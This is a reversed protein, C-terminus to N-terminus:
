EAEKDNFQESLPKGKVLNLMQLWGEYKDGQLIMWITTVISHNISLKDCLFKIKELRDNKNEYAMAVFSDATATDV